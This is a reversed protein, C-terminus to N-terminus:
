GSVLLEYVEDTVALNRFLYDPAEKQLDEYKTWGTSVALCRLRNARACSIDCISDGIIWTDAPDFKQRYLNGARQMAIPPLENRDKADDGYGGVAFYNYIGAAQLKIQAGSKSNGTVLGLFINGTEQLRNLLNMIGDYILPKKGNMLQAELENAFDKIIQFVLKKTVLRHDFLLMHEIIEWDTRGSFDFSNDYIFDPFRKKLVQAMAQRPIGHTSILTGDIDFLILGPRASRLRKQIM